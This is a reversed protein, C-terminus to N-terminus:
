ATRPELRALGPAPEEGRVAITLRPNGVLYLMVGVAAFAAPAFLPPAVALAAKLGAFTLPAGDLLRMLARAHFGSGLAGVMAALVGVARIGRRFLEATRHPAALFLLAAAACPAFAVPIVQAPHAMERGAFHSIAADLGLGLVGPAIGMAIVRKADLKRMREMLAAKMADETTLLSGSFLM